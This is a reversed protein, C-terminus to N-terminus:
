PYWPASDFETQYSLPASVTTLRGVLRAGCRGWGDYDGVPHLLWDHSRNQAAQRVAHASHRNQSLGSTTRSISICNPHCAWLKRRHAHHIAYVFQWAVPSVCGPVGMSRTPNCSAM